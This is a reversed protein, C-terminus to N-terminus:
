NLRDPKFLRRRSISRGALTFVGQGRYHLTEPDKVRAVHAKVVDWIFLGRKAIQSTDALRCEFSAYCEAILPADVKSAEVPTLGFREFKDGETGHCNGIRVVTDSLESTPVNIVCQKSRRFLEFSHNADWVYTGVVSYDLMMHWGLTMINREGKWASTVLV